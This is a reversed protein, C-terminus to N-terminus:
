GNGKFHQSDALGFKPDSRMKRAEQHKLMYDIAEDVDTTTFLLKEKSDYIRWTMAEDEHNEHIRAEMTTEGKKRPRYRASRTNVGMRYHLANSDILRQKM